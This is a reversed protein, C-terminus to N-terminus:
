VKGSKPPPPRFRPPWRSRRVGPCPRRRLGYRRSIRRSSACNPSRPETLPERSEGVDWRTTCPPRRDIDATPVTPQAVSPLVDGPTSYGSVDGVVGGFPQAADAAGVEAVRKQIRVGKLAMSTTHLENAVYAGYQLMEEDVNLIPLRDIHRGYNEFWQALQGWTQMKKKKDILNELLNQVSQFYQQTSELMTPQQTQAATGAAAQQGQPAQAKAAQTQLANTPLAVLSGIRTLGSSTLEGGLFVANGKVEPTWDEIEDIMLGRHGLVELILPKAIGSLLGADSEFDIKLKAYAKDRFTIGLM